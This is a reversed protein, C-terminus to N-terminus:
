FDRGGVSFEFVPSDEVESERDLPFGLVVALPGFGDLAIDYFLFSLGWLFSLSILLLWARPSLSLPTAM